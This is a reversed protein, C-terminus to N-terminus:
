LEAVKPKYFNVYFFNDEKIGANNVLHKIQETKEIDVEPSIGLFSIFERFNEFRFSLSTNLSYPTISYEPKTHIGAKKFAKRIIEFDTNM